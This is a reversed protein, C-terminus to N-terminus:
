EARRPHSELKQFTPTQALVVLYGATRKAAGSRCRTFVPHFRL